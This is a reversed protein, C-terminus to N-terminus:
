GKRHDRIHEYFMPKQTYLAELREPTLIEKPTGVCTLGKSLCLVRTAYRYVVSLDNSVLIITLGKEEQLSHLLGYVNEESLEDLSATPEDFLMIDPDGLLAFAILLKQFQGGSLVGVRSDMLDATLGAAAAASEMASEPLKWIKAKAALLERSRLPMEEGAFTKQPVYGARTGEAWRIKGTYPILGLLARLLVTKGSGNPGIVALTERQRVDFSLNEIVIRPGFRVTLNSVTLLAEM